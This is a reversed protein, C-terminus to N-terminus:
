KQSTMAMILHIPFDDITPVDVTIGEDKQSSPRPYPDPSKAKGGASNVTLVSNDVIADHLDALVDAERTWGAFQMGGLTMARFRSGTVTGLQGALALVRGPSLQGRWVAALELTYFEQFDAELEDGYEDVLECLRRIKGTRGHVM